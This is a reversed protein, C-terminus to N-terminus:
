AIKEVIVPGGFRTRAWSILAGITQGEFKRVIPAAEVIVGGKVVLRVTFGPCSFYTVAKRDDADRMTVGTGRQKM